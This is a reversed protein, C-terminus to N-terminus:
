GASTSHAQKGSHTERKSKNKKIPSFDDFAVVEESCGKRM